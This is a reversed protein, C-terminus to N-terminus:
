IFKGWRQHVWFWQEPHERVWAELQANIAHMVAAVNEERSGPLEPLELPKAEFRFRAGDGRVARAMLIPAKLKLTLEAIAPATMAPHGFFPVAIGDNMKQDVLMGAPLGAKLRKILAIAGEKGKPALADCVRARARYVLRDVYPNNLRRYILLLPVGHMATVWAPIEWNAFHGGAFIVARNQARVQQFLAASNESLSIRRALARRGLRPYEAITRGLNNWMRDLIQEREQQTLEPMAHELNRRAIRQWKLRPGVAQALRGGLGSAADLPLLAFLGYLLGFLAAEVAYRLPHKRRKM